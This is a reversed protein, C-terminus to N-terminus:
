GEMNKKIEQMHEKSSEMFKKVIGESMRKKLVDELSMESEDKKMTGGAGQSDEAGVANAFADADGGAVQGKPSTPQGAPLGGAQGGAGPQVGPSGISM